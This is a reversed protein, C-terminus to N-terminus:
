SWMRVRSAGPRDSHSEALLEGYALAGKRFPPINEDIANIWLIVGGMASTNLTHGIEHASVTPGVFPSQAALGVVPGGARPVLFNFNGLSYGGVPLTAPPYGFANAIFAQIGGTSEVNGSRFDVRFAGLGLTFLSFPFNFLFLVFGVFTALYSMPAVWAIWGVIVQFFPNRSFVTFASLWHVLMVAFPLFLWFWPPLALLVLSLVTCFLGPSGGSLCMPLLLFLLCANLAATLGCSFGRALLEAPLNPLAGGPPPTIAPAIAASAVLYALLYSLIILLGVFLLIQSFGMGGVISLAIPIFSIVIPIPPAGAAVDFMAGFILGIILGIISGVLNPM